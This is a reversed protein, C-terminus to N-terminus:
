AAGGKGAALVEELERLIERAARAGDPDTTDLREALQRLLERVQEAAKRSAADVASSASAPAIEPVSIDRTGAAAASAVKLQPRVAVKLDEVSMNTRVARIAVASLQDPIVGEAPMKGMLVKLHGLGFSRNGERQFPVQLQDRLEIPLRDWILAIKNLVSVLSRDSLGLADALEAQSLRREQLLRKVRFALEFISEPTRHRNSSFALGFLAPEDDDCQTMRFETDLLLGDEGRLEILALVRLWGVVVRQDTTIIILDVLPEDRLVAAMQEVRAKPPPTSLGRSWCSPRLDGLRLNGKGPLIQVKGGTKTIADEHTTSSM